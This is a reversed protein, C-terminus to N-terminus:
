SCHQRHGATPRLSAQRPDHMNSMASVLLATRSSPRETVTSRSPGFGSAAPGDLHYSWGFMNGYLRIWKLVATPRRASQAVALASSEWLLSSEPEFTPRQGVNPPTVTGFHIGRKGYINRVQSTNM